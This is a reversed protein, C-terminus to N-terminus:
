KQIIMKKPESIQFKGNRSIELRYFYVGAALRSNIYTVRNEGVYVPLNRIIDMERGLPDFIRIQASAASEQLSYVFETQEKFPNPRNLLEIKEPEPKKIGTPPANTISTDVVKALKNVLLADKITQGSDITFLATKEGARIADGSISFALISIGKGTEKISPQINEDKILSKVDSILGGESIRIDFASIDESSYLYVIGNEIMLEATAASSSRLTAQSELESSQILNVTVIIDQINVKNDANVDAAKFNFPKPTELLMYNLTQQIDLINVLGDMNADGQKYDVTYYLSSNAASGNMQRLEITQGLGLKTNEDMQNNLWYAANTATSTPSNLSVNSAYIKFMPIIGFNQAQHDYTFIAPIDNFLVTGDLKLEGKDFSQRMNLTTITSPLVSKMSVISNGSLDLTKLYPLGTLDPITGTLNNSPLQIATVHGENVSVGKWVRQHLDNQSIDWKDIWNEGNTSQFFLKLINFESDPVPIVNADYNECITINSIVIDVDAPNGGFDFLIMDFQTIAIGGTNKFIGKVTRTGAPVMLSPIDIFNNDEGDKQVKMYVRPLDKSTEIDFSLFYTKEVDLSQMEPRLFFQAQWDASTASGLHMSLQENEWAVTYDDSAIWGPAYLASVDYSVGSLINNGGCEYTPPYHPEPPEVGTCNTGYTYTLESTPWANNDGSTQYEITQNIYIEDGPNMMGAVPTFIVQMKDASISRTFYKFGTNADGNVTMAQVRADNYGFNRFSTNDEVYYPAITMYFKGDPATEMSLYARQAETSGIEYYCYESPINNNNTLGATVTIRYVNCSANCFLYLTTANGTYKVTQKVAINDGSLEFTGILNTGDTLFMKRDSGSSGTIGVIDVTVDGDVEFSLFRQEPLNVMPTVDTAQAGSYGAGNFQMRMSYDVGDVTKSNATIAGFNTISKGPNFTLGAIATAEGAPVGTTAPFVEWDSFNWDYTPSNILSCDRTEVKYSYEDQENLIRFCTSETVNEINVTQPAGWGNNFIINVSDAEITYSYWGSADATVITGPWASLLLDNTDTWAYIYMNGYWNLDNRWKVTIKNDSQPPCNLEEVKYYWYDQQENLIRFCTSETVDEIDITQYNGNNFIVNVSDADFTYSYWGNGGATVITGPWGGSLENSSDWAYIHMDGSWNLDNRWKVTIDKASSLNIGWFMFVTLVFLLRYNTKM